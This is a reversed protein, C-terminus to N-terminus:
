LLINDPIFVKCYVETFRVKGLWWDCHVSPRTGRFAVFMMNIHVLVYTRNNNLALHCAMADYPCLMTPALPSCHGRAVFLLYTRNGNLTLGCCQISLADYPSLSLAPAIASVLPASRLYIAFPKNIRILNPGGCRTCKQGLSTTTM